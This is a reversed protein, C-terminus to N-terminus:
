KAPAEYVEILATGTTNNVGSVIASYLGPQLTILLASDKSGSPLGFAGSANEATSIDTPSGPTPGGSVAVQTGWDDNQALVTGDTKVIKLTPDALVGTVNFATLAPGVGRILVRKPDTGSIVFGAVLVGDGTDAVGRTSLNIIKSSSGGDADYVEVLAVGDGGNAGV